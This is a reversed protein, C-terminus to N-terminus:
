LAAEMQSALDDLRLALTTLEESLGDPLDTSHLVDRYALALDAFDKQVLRFPAKAAGLNGTGLVNGASALDTKTRTLVPDAAGIDVLYPVLDYNVRDALGVAREGQDVFFQLRVSDPVQEQAEAVALVFEESLPLIQRNVSQVALETKSALATVLDPRRASVVALARQAATTDYGASNLSNILEQGDRVWADFAELQSEKRVTWYTNKKEPIYPSDAKAASMQLALRDWNGSGRTMVAYTDTRYKGTTNRMMAILTDIRAGTDAEPILAEEAQFEALLRSMNSTDSGYLTGCYAIAANMDTGTELASWALHAQRIGTDDAAPSSAAAMVPACLVVACALAALLCSVRCNM